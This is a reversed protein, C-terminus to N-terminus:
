EELFSVTSEASGQHVAAAQINVGDSHLSLNEQMVQRTSESVLGSRMELFQTIRDVEQILAVIGPILEENRTKAYELAESAAGILGQYCASLGPKLESEWQAQDEPLIKSRELEESKRQCVRIHQELTQEMEQRSVKHQQYASVLEIISLAM